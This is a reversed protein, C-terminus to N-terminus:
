DFIAALEASSAGEKITRLEFYLSASGASAIVSNLVASVFTIAMAVPSIGGTWNLSGGGLAGLPLSAAMGVLISVVGYIAILAFVRWRSGETLDKSRELSGFVGKSEAVMAPAAVAWRTAVLLGPIVLLIFAFGMAVSSVFGLGVLPIASRLGTGLSEGFTARGGNFFVLSGHTVAGILIYAPVAALLNIAMPLFPILPSYDPSELMLLVLYATGTTVLVAPIGALLTAIMLFALLNAGIASFMRSIVRGIDLRADFTVTAM